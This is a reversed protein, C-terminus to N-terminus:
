RAQKLHKAFFERVERRAEAWAAPDGGTTAGRGSPSTSNNREAVFRLPANSDFSHQAGPYVLCALALGLMLLLADRRRRM